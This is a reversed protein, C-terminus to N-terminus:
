HSVPETRHEISHTDYVDTWDVIYIQILRSQTSQRRGQVFICLINTFTQRRIPKNNRNHRCDACQLNIYLLQHCIPQFYMTHCLILILTKWRHFCHESVCGEEETSLKDLVIQFNLLFHITYTVCPYM